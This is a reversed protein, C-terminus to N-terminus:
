SRSGESRPRTSSRALSARRPRATASRSTSPTGQPGSSWRATTSAGSPPASSRSQRDPPSIRRNGHGHGSATSTAQSVPVWWSTPPRRTGAAPALLGLPPQGRDSHLAALIQRVSAISAAATSGTTLRRRRWTMSSLARAPPRRRPAHSPAVEGTEAPQHGGAMREKRSRWSTLM